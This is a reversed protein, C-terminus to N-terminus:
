ISLPPGLLELGYKEFIPAVVAPNPPGAVSALEMFFEEVGAPELTLLMTGTTKGINLFRHPINRRVFVFDGAHAEFREGAAEFLYDGELIYFGEDERHHVHLPPGVGAPTVNEIVSYRGGTDAAGLKVYLTDGFVPLPKGRRTAARQVISSAPAANSM